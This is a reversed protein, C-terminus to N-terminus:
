AGPKIYIGGILKANFAGRTTTNIIFAGGYDIFQVKARTSSNMLAAPLLGPKKPSNSETSYLESGKPLFNGFPKKNIETLFYDNRAGQNVGKIM